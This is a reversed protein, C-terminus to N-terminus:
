EKDYDPEKNKENFEKHRKAVTAVDDKSVKGTEYANELTLLEGDVLVLLRFSSGYSIVSGAIELHTITDQESASADFIVPRGNLKGYYRTLKLADGIKSWAPKRSYKKEFLSNIEALEEETIPETGDLFMVDDLTIEELGSGGIKILRDHVGDGYLFDTVAKHREAALEIDNESVFGKEYAEDLMYLTGDKCVKIGFGTPYAFKCNAVIICSEATLQNIGFYVICGNFVGYCIYGGSVKGDTGVTAWQVNGKFTDPFKKKLAAEFEETLKEDPVVLAEEIPIDPAQAGTTGETGTIVNTGTTVKSDSNQSQKANGGRGGCSALLMVAALILM